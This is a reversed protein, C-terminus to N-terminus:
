TTQKQEKLQVKDAINVNVYNLSQMRVGVLEPLPALGLALRKENSYLDGADGLIRMAELVQTTNMFILEKPLFVIENGHNRENETFLGKTFAQSIAIVLPEIKKQYFAEYQEKTYDGTLIPMSVGFMRLIRTDIFKLTEPDILQPKKDIAIYDSKGDVGLIGSDGKKLKENFEAVMKDTKERDMISGSKLIGNINFSTKMAKLTGEMLNENMSLLKLLASNDPQGNKNGGLFDNFSFKYRVHIINEYPLTFEQSNHFRMKIFLKGSEDELFDVNRPQLPYMEALRDGEFIPYIISNYNLFLNWVVKSIFDSRTMLSNPNNLVRQVSSNVPVKDSGDTRIHKPTLKTMEAVICDVISQVIDSAYINEGFQSFIPQGSNLMHAFRLGNIKNKFKAFVGM